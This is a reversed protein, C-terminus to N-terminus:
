FAAAKTSAGRVKWKAIDYGPRFPFYDVNDFRNAWAVPNLPEWLITNPQEDYFVRQFERQLEVRKTDDMEQRIQTLLADARPSIWNDYNSGRNAAQSSHYLQFNDSEFPDQQWSGYRADFKHDRVRDLFVSWETAEVNADIGVKRMSESVILLINKRTENGSNVLFTFSFKVRKGNIMKDRIGDGDHDKWDLSDLMAQARAPDFPIEPLKLYEPHLSVVPSQTLTALGYLVKTIITKRDVLYAMARRVNVDAFIPNKMNWGLLAFAALPFTQKRIDRHQATDLKVWFPPQVFGMLDIDHSELSTVAATFNNITKYILTDPNAEGAAGWHNVYNPNRVLRVYDQTVWKDLKYPGSGQIYKPERGLDNGIFWDAQEQLAPNKHKALITSDVEKGNAAKEVIEGIDDWTYKDTLGKPDFIHKPLIYLVDGFAAQKILFYPKWLTFRLHYKDGVLEVSHICDVYTRKQGSYTNFPNKLAKLSFVVDDGTMPTGDAFKVDKRLVFDFTLHDPSETPMAEALWPINYELTKPNARILREFVQEEAYTENAGTSNFPNLREFDSLVWEVLRNSTSLPKGGPAGNSRCGGLLAVLAVLAVPALLACTRSWYGIRNKM